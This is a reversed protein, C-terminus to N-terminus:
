GCKRQRVMAMIGLVFNPTSHVLLVHKHGQAIITWHKRYSPKWHESGILLLSHIVPEKLYKSGSNFAEAYTSHVQVILFSGVMACAYRFNGYLQWFSAVPIGREVYCVGENSPYWLCDVQAGAGRFGLLRKCIYLVCM